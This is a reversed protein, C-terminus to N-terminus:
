PKCNKGLGKDICKMAQEVSLTEMWKGEAASAADFQSFIDELIAPDTIRQDALFQILLDTFKSKIKVNATREIQNVVVDIAIYCNLIYRMEGSAFALAYCDNSFDYFKQAGGPKMAFDYVIAYGALAATKKLKEGNTEQTIVYQQLRGVNVNDSYSGLNPLRETAALSQTKVTIALLVFLIIASCRM